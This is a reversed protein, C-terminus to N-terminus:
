YYYIKFSHLQFRKKLLSDSKRCCFDITGKLIITIEQNNHNKMVYEEPYYVKGSLQM